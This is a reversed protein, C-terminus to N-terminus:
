IRRALRFADWVAGLIRRPSVCDGITHFQRGTDKLADILGTVPKLGIALVATDTQLEGIGGSNEIKIGKDTMGLCKTHTLAKVDYQKLLSLLHMRNAQFADMMLDDLMEVVTVKRGKQALWIGTECGIMGGGIVAVEKGPEKEGLLVDVATVVKEHPYDLFAPIIPAAGTALILEDPNRENILEPTAEKGTEIQVGLKKIQSSMYEILHQLDIKFEPVAAPTLNGGLRGSKEWLTVEHGRLAAVRAAEMGAPGGGVILVSKKKPAPTIAYEREMGTQPNVTCSIYRAQFYIRGLCGEHDGICPRIDDFAGEKVKNPWEPDALLSRGLAIFDAKGEKLVSEALKPNGLLGVTIVPVKLAKKFEAADEVSVGPKMSYPPHAWDWADYCGADIHFCDVGAEELRKAIALSEEIERGGEIHHRSAMRFMIPFDPGVAKRVIDIIELPFTLRKEEDGGYKDTRKNWIATMFQDILYGEHAHLEIADLGAAKVNAAAVGFAKVLGEVEEFTLGRATITPDWFCPQTSPAVAWGSSIIAGKAVRGFGATLQAAIKAGHDHVAYALENLRALFVPSDARPLLSWPGDSRKEIMVDVAMLGTIILGVGGKARAEFYDVGRQSYRGDPEVLGTTGMPAMVIRNKLELQGIKGSEFLM